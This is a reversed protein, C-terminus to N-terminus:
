AAGGQTGHTASCLSASRSAKADRKRHTHACCAAANFACACTHDTAGCDTREANRDRASRGADASTDFSAFRERLRM